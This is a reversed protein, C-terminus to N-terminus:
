RWNCCLSHIKDGHDFICHALGSFLCHLGQILSAADQPQNWAGPGLSHLARWSLHGERIVGPVQQPGGHWGCQTDWALATAKMPGTRMEEREPACELGRSGTHPLGSTRQPELLWALLTLGQSQLPVWDWFSLNSLLTSGSAPVAIRECSWMLDPWWFRASVSIPPSHCECLVCSLPDECASIPLYDILGEKRGMIRGMIWPCPDM